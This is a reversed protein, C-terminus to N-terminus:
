PVLFTNKRWTTVENYANAIATTNLWIEAGDSKRGWFVSSPQSVPEYEPLCGPIESLDKPPSEVSAPDNFRLDEPSLTALMHLDLISPPLSFNANESQHSIINQNESESFDQSLGCEYAAAIHSTPNISTDSNGAWASSEDLEIKELRSAQDRLNQSKLELHEYGKENWLENMVEIYGKRRGNRNCPPNQSDTLAKAKRKCQLVDKNMQETWKVRAKRSM